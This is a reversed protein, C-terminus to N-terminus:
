SWIKEVNGTSLVYISHSIILIGVSITLNLLLRFIYGVKKLVKDRKFLFNLLVLSLLIISVVSTSTIVTLFDSAISISIGQSSIIFFLIFLIVNMFFFTYSIKNLITIIWPEKNNNFM